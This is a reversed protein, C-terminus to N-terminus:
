TVVRPDDDESAHVPPEWDVEQKGFFENLDSIMFKMHRGMRDALSEFIHYGALCPLAIVLGAVTTLLSEWIGAALQGPQAMGEMQEIVAFAAVLGTVTGLLGLLPALHAILSLSRLRTEAAELERSGERQLIDQRLRDDCDLHELYIRAMRAVPHLSRATLALAEAHQHQRLRALLDRTFQRTSLRRRGFFVLRELIIALGLVSALLLPWMVPGGKSFLTEFLSSMQTVM